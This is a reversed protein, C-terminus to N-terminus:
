WAALEQLEVQQELVVAPAVAIAAIPPRALEALADARAEIRPRRSVGGNLSRGAALALAAPARALDDIAQRATGRSVHELRVHTGLTRTRFTSAPLEVGARPELVARDPAPAGRRELVALRLTAESRAGSAHVDVVGTTAWPAVHPLPRVAEDSKVQQM